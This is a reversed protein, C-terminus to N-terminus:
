NCMQSLFGINAEGRIGPGVVLEVNSRDGTVHAATIVFCEPGRARTVGQGVSQGRVFVSAAEGPACVAFALLLFRYRMVM